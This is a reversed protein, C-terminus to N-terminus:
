WRFHAFAKNSEAMKHMDEKKKIASGKNQYADYIENFIKDSMKKDKRKRSADIIWRLALAQSRKSKVEVPVQYTAGGVRRSRVEVTPRVNKIADNFIDIPEDKTKSKIKELAEYVIKEAITKKGDFMISNILKPIITSKYKSDVIQIKKPASRKRSM